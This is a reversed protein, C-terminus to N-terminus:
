EALLIMARVWITFRKEQLLPLLLLLSLLLLPALPCDVRTLSRRTGYYTCYACMYVGRCAAAVPVSVYSRACKRRRTNNKNNNNWLLLLLLLLPRRTGPRRTMRATPSVVVLPPPDDNTRPAAVVVVVDTQRRRPCTKLVSKPRLSTPVRRRSRHPFTTATTTTAASPPTSITTDDDPHYWQYQITYHLVSCCFVALPERADATAPIAPYARASFSPAPKQSGNSEIQFLFCFRGGVAVPFAVRSVCSSRRGDAAARPPSPRQADRAWHRIACVRVICVM